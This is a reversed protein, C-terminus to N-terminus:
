CVSFFSLHLRQETPPHGFLTWPLCVSYTAPNRVQIFVTSFILQTHTSWWHCIDSIDNIVSVRTVTVMQSICQLLTARSSKSGATNSCLRKMKLGQQLSDSQINMANFWGRQHLLNPSVQRNIRHEMQQPYIYHIIHHPVGSRALHRGRWSKFGREILYNPRSLRNYGCKLVLHWVLTLIVARPQREFSELAGCCRWVGMGCLELRHWGVMIQALVETRMVANLKLHALGVPVSVFDCM